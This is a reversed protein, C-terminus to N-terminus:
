NLIDPCELSGGGSELFMLTTAVHKKPRWCLQQNFKIAYNFMAYLSKAQKIDWSSLDANFAIAYAFANNFYKVNSTDWSSIDTAFSVAYYFSYKMNKVKSTDWSGINGNFSEADSFISELSTVLSTDWSSLDQNFSTSNFFMRKMTTIQSTDWGGIESNFFEDGYFLETADTVACTRWDSIIGYEETAFSTDESWAFVADAINNDDLCSRTPSHSRTVSPIATPSSTIIDKPLVTQIPRSFSRSATLHKYEDSSNDELMNEKCESIGYTQFSLKETQPLRYSEGTFDLVSFYYISCKSNTEKEDLDFYYNGGRAHRMPYKSGDVVISVTSYSGTNLIQCFFRITSIANDSYPAINSLKDHWGVVIPHESAKFSNYVQTIYNKYKSNRDFFFGNGATNFDRSMINTCHGPSSLFARVTQLPHSFGAAINEGGATAPMHQTFKLQRSFFFTSGFLNANKSNTDHSFYNETGMEWSHFRAAQDLGSSWYLPSRQLGDIGCAFGILDYTKSFDFPDSRAHNTYGLLAREHWNSYLESPYNACYRNDNKCYPNQDLFDNSSGGLKREYYDNVKSVRLGKNSINDGSIFDISNGIVKQNQTEFEDKGENEPPSFSYVHKVVFFIVFLFSRIPYMTM